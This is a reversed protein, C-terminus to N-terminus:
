SKKQSAQHVVTDYIYHVYKAYGVLFCTDEMLHFAFIGAFHINKTCYNHYNKHTLAFSQQSSSIVM